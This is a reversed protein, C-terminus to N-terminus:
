ATASSSSLWFAQVETFGKLAVVAPEITFSEPLAARTAASILTEGPRSAQELRAALNVTEGWVDYLFKREGIVGGVAAGTAIGVRMQLGDQRLAMRQHLVVAFSAVRAAHDPQAMPAGGALMYADGITKIKELGLDAAIDDCTAFVEELLQVLDEATMKTSLKTFGVIDAFLITVDDLHDAIRTQGNTMRAAIEPPLIRELLTRVKAREVEVLKLAAAQSSAFYNMLVLLVLSAGGINLIFLITRVQVSIQLAAEPALRQGILAFGVLSVVFVAFWFMAAKRGAFVLAGVPATVSWLAVASSPVFGGLAVMMLMPLLLSSTLQVARLFHYEGTKAFVLLAAWAILSYALPALAALPLGLWLYLGGWFVGALSMMGASILLLTKKLTREPTDEPLAGIHSALDVLTLWIGNM